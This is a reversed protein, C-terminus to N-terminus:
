KLSKFSVLEYKQVSSYAEEHELSLCHLDYDVRFAYPHCMVEFIESEKIFPISEYIKLIDITKDVHIFNSAILKNVYKKEIKKLFNMKPYFLSTRMSVFGEMKAIKVCLKTLSPITHIHGHSDFHFLTLGLKKYESIQAKLEKEIAKKEKKTLFFHMFKSILIKQSFRGDRSLRKCKLIDDTLPKGRTLNFHLGIKEFFGDQKAYNISIQNLSLDNVMMTTQSIYGKSFAYRIAAIEEKNKGYDDANVIVKRKDM